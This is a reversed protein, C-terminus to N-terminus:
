GPLSSVSKESWKLHWKELMLERQIPFIFTLVQTRVGHLQLEISIGAQLMCMRLITSYIIEFFSLWGESVRPPQLTHVGFCQLFCRGRPPCLDQNGLPRPGGRWWGRSSVFHRPLCNLRLFIVELDQLSKGQVNWTQVDLPSSPPAADPFTM